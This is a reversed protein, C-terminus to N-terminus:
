SPKAKERTSCINLQNSALTFDPQLAVAQRYDACAGSVDGKRERVLGLDYYAIYPEDTGLAIGKSLDAIADDYRKIMILVAGRDVYAEALDARITLGTNYDKLAGLYDFIRVKLIGRNVLTAARDALGLTGAELADSCTAVGQQPPGNFQAAEYCSRASGGGIVTEAGYSGTATVCWCLTAGILVARTGYHRLKEERNSKGGSWNEAKRVSASAIATNWFLL